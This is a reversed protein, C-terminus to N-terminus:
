LNDLSSDNEEELTHISSIIYNIYSHVKIWNVHSYLLVTLLGTGSIDKILIYEEVRKKDIDKTGTILINSFSTWRLNRTFRPVSANIAAALASITDEVLDTEHTSVMTLGDYSLLFLSKIDQNNKLVTEFINRIERAKGTIM